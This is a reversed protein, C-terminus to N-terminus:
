YIKCYIGMQDGIELQGSVMRGEVRSGFVSKQFEYLIMGNVQKLEEIRVDCQGYGDNVM